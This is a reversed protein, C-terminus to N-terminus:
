PALQFLRSRKVLFLSRQDTPFVGSSRLQCRPWERVRLCPSALTQCRYYTASDISIPNNECGSSASARSFGLTGSVRLETQSPRSAHTAAYTVPVSALAAISGAFPLGTVVCIKLIRNM